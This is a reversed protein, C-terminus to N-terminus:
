KKNSLKKRVLNKAVKGVSKFDADFEANKSVWIANKFSFFTKTTSKVFWVKSM